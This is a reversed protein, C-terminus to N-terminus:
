RGGGNDPEIVAGMRRKYEHADKIDTDSWSAALALEGLTYIPRTEGAELLRQRDAEGHVWLVRDQLLASWVTVVTGPPVAASEIRKRIWDRNERLKALLADPLPRAARVKVGNGTPELTGGHERVEHILDEAWWEAALQLLGGPAPRKMRVSM